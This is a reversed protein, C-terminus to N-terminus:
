DGIQHRWVGALPPAVRVDRIESSVPLDCAEARALAAIPIRRASRRGPEVEACFEGGTVVTLNNCEYRLRWCVEASRNGGLHQISCEVVPERSSGACDVRARLPDIGSRSRCGGAVVLLALTALAARSARLLRM